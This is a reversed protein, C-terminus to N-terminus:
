WTGNVNSTDRRSTVVVETGGTAVDRYSTNLGIIGDFGQDM